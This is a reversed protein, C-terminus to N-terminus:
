LDKDKFYNVLLAVVYNYSQMGKPQNNLKLYHGYFYKFGPELPNKYGQWFQYVEKFNKIIGPNIEKSLEEAKQSDLESLDGLCYQLAFTYGAYKFYPNPHKITTLAAMFNAENEKAYGLQHGMEHATLTPQRFTPVMYNVQAEATWPNLYGSFGMYTLPLSIISSKISKQTYDLHPYTKSINHYGEIALKRIENQNYDFKVKLSDNGTLKEQYQNSKTILRETLDILEKESYQDGIQLNQHLPLRYYNFGWLVHFLFYIISVTSLAQILWTKLHKFKTKIGIYIWRIIFFALTFYLIDGLSFPIWGFLFREAKSIIPFIPRSYYNEVVQPFHKIIQIFIIQLPLFIVLAIHIKKKM